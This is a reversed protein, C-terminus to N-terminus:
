EKYSNLIERVRRSDAAADRYNGLIKNVSVRGVYAGLLTLDFDDNHETGIRIARTFDALALKYDGLDSYTRGREYHASAYDPNVGIAKTYDAVAEQYNGLEYYARGRSTYASAAHIYDPDVRLCKTYNDISLQYEGDEYYYDHARNYYEEATDMCGIMPLCLLILLLKKMM